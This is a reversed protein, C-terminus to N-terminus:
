NKLHFFLLRTQGIVTTRLCADSSETAQVNPQRRQQGGRRSKCILRLMQGSCEFQVEASAEREIGLIKPKILFFLPPQMKMLNNGKERDARSM